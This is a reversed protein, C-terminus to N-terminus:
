KGRWLMDARNPGYSIAVVEAGGKKEVYAIFDRLAAPWNAEEAYPTDQGWSPFYAWERTVETGEGGVDDGERDIAVPIEEFHALVDLKTLILGTVGNCRVTRRLDAIDLWGCRRERGTTAGYEQGHERLQQELAATARSPFPGEGVRTCYAKSVGYVSKIETTPVGLSICAGGVSPHSSTVYPYMGQEIDLLAGQAGEALMRKGKDLQQHVWGHGHVPPNLLDKLKEIAAFFVDDEAPDLTIDHCEAHWTALRQYTYRPDSSPTFFDGLRMGRRAYKDAYCPGIGRRTSGIQAAGTQAEGRWVEEAAELKKHVPLIVHVERSLVLRDKLNPLFQVKELEQCLVVPDLVVSPAIFNVVDDHLIGSPIQHLILKQLADNVAVYLTHGANPGGQYRAVIDYSAALVDVCKGKGEDGWQLGLIVSTSM